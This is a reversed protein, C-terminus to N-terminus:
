NKEEDQQGSAQKLWSAVSSSMTDKSQDPPCHDAKLPASTTVVGSTMRPPMPNKLAPERRYGYYSYYSYQKSKESADNVVVGMIRKKGVAEIADKVLRKETRWARVVLVMADVYNMLTIPEPCLLIPPTDIIIYRYRNRLENIFQPLIPQEVTHTPDYSPSGATIYDLGDDHKTIVDDLSLGGLIADSIGPYVKRDFFKHLSPKRLDCDLILTKGLADIGLARALNVAIVSKGEKPLASSVALVQFQQRAVNAREIKARIIRLREAAPLSTLVGSPLLIHGESLASCRSLEQQGARSSTKSVKGNLKEPQATEKMLDSMEVNGDAM